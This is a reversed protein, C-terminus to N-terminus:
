RSLWQQGLLDATIIAAYVSDPTVPFPMNHITEGEVCAAEAVAQIKKQIDQKVGMQGLTVPLGVKQCFALVTEIEETPSNQLILQSLTGFAVKEGHYLHHCEELVTFANHIAHAAALGSSEFGIGSLYTNAEVIRELADTVVGAQAAFRAKEGEALLTEYCLRALSLAAATSKGGAMSTAGSDYCAKAEFWTSLADGMGAVLLRVPAKAIITTDMVVMDPNKPYILYEAFEGTETYIVSLASTPADTSAITPIVVVPLKLYWAIAKATDLTKGGGLGIVGRCGNQEALTMLRNIEARCCEGSFREAHCTVDHEALGSLVKDGAMNMVFDDAIVFFRDALNKAYQGFSMAANPGQIYKAPSQIIKPM